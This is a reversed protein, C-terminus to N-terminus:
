FMFDGRGSLLEAGVDDIVARSDISSLTQFALRGSINAKLLGSAVMCDPCSTAVVMDAGFDDHGLVFPLEFKRAGGESSDVVRAILEEARPSEVRDMAHLERAVDLLKKACVRLKGIIERNKM